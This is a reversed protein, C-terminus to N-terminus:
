REQAMDALSAAKRMRLGCRKSVGDSSSPCYISLSTKTHGVIHGKEQGFGSRLVGQQGQQSM